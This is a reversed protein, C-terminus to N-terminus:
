RRSQRCRLRRARPSAGADGHERHVMTLRAPSGPVLTRRISARIVSSSRRRNATARLRNAGVVRFRAISLSPKTCASGIRAGARACSRVSRWRTSPSGRRRGRAGSGAARRDFFVEEDVVAEQRAGHLRQHVRAVRCRRQDAARSARRPRTSSTRARARRPADARPRRAIRARCADRVVPAARGVRGRMQEVAHVVAAQQADRPALAADADVRRVLVRRGGIAGRRAARM